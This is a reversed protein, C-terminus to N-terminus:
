MERKKALILRIGNFFGNTRYKSLDVYAKTLTITSCNNTIKNKRFENESDDISILLKEVNGEIGIKRKHILEVYDAIASFGKDNTVIGINANPYEKLMYGVHAAIYFDLANQGAKQLKIINFKCRSDAINKVYETKIKRATPDSYFICLIDHAMLYETGKLGNNSVINEYDVLIIAM